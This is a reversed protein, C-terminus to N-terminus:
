KKKKKKRGEKGENRKNGKATTSPYSPFSISPLLFFFNMYTSRLVALGKKEM